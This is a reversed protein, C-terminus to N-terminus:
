TRSPAWPRLRPLWRPVNRCFEDYSAGYKKRLTPEEYFVVFLHFGVAVYGLYEWLPWSRFLVCQGAILALVGIYMPNRVHRYFGSAVLTETPHSPSLTGQGVKVFRAISEGLPLLGVAILAVALLPWGLTEQPVRWRTIWAPLYVVVIGPGGFVIFALTVLLNRPKNSSAVM